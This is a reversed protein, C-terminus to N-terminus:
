FTLPDVQINKELQKCNYKLVKKRLQQQFDKPLKNKNRLLKNLHRLVFNNVAEHTKEDLHCSTDAGIDAGIDAEVESKRFMFRYILVSIIFAVFVGLFTMGIIFEPRQTLPLTDEQLQEDKSARIKKTRRM